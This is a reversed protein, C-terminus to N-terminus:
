PSSRSPGRSGDRRAALRLWCPLHFAAMLLYMLAMGSIPGGQGVSCIMAAERDGFAITWLAMTAFTPSAALGLWGSFDPIKSM